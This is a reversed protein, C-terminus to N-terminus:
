MTANMLLVEEEDETLPNVVSEIVIGKRLYGCSCLIMKRIYVTAHDLTGYYKDLSYSRDMIGHGYTFLIYHYKNHM